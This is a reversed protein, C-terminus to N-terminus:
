TVTVFDLVSSSRVEKGSVWKQRQPEYQSGFLKIKFNVNEVLVHKNWFILFYLYVFSSCLFAGTIENALSLWTANQNIHM